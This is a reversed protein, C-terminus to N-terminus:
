KLRSGFYPLKRKPPDNMWIVREELKRGCFICTDVERRIRYQQNKDYYTRYRTVYAHRCM